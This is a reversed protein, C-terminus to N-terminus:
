DTEATGADGPKAQGAAPVVLAGAVLLAFLSRPRPSM